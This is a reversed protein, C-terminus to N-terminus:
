TVLADLSVRTLSRAYLPRVSWFVCTTSSTNITIPLVQTRLAFNVRFYSRGQVQVELTVRVPDVVENADTASCM